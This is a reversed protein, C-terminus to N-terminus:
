QRATLPRGTDEDGYTPQATTIYHHLHGSGKLMTTARATLASQRRAIAARLAYSTTAPSGGNSAPCGSSSSASAPATTTTANRLAELSPMNLRDIEDIIIM